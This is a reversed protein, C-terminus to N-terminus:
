EMREMRGVDWGQGMMPSTERFIPLQPTVASSEAVEIRAMPADMVSDISSSDSVTPSPRVPTMPHVRVRNTSPTIRVEEMRGYADEVDTDPSFVSVEGNQFRALLEDDVWLSPTVAERSLELGPPRKAPRRTHTSDRASARNSPSPAPVSSKAPFPYLIRGSNSESRTMTGTEGATANSHSYSSRSSSSPRSAHRSQSVSRASVFAHSKRHPSRPSSGASSKRSIRGKSPIRSVPRSASISPTSDTSITSRSQSRPLESAQPLRGPSLQPPNCRTPLKDIIVTEVGEVATPM